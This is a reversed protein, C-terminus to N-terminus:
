RCAPGAPHRTCAQAPRQRLGALSEGARRSGVVIQPKRTNRVRSWIKAKDRAGPKRKGAIVPQLALRLPNGGHSILSM